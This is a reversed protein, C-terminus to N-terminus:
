GLDDIVSDPDIEINDDAGGNFLILDQDPMENKPKGCVLRNRNKDKKEGEEVFDAYVTLHSDPCPVPPDASASGELVGVSGVLGTCLM